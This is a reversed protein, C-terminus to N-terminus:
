LEGMAKLTEPQEPYETLYRWPLTAYFGGEGSILQNAMRRGATDFEKRAFTERLLPLNGINRLQWYLRGTYYASFYQLWGSYYSLARLQIRSQMWLSEEETLWENLVGTRCLFGMRVYDWSRIGGEGCCMATDAVFRAYIRAHEDLTDIYEMWEQPSYRFWRRYLWELQSAHGDDTMRYITQLLEDRHNIDWLSELDFRKMGLYMKASSHSPVCHANLIEMPSSLAFLLYQSEKDM